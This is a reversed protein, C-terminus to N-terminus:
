TLPGSPIRRQQLAQVQERTFIPQLLLQNQQRSRFLELIYRMRQSLLVWDDAGTGIAVHRDIGLKGLLDEAVDELHRLADHEESREALAEFQALMMGLEANEITELVPPFLPQGPSAPLDRGLRLTGDPLKLTMMLETAFRHFVDQVHDTIPSLLRDVLAYGRPGLVENGVREALADHTANVLMNGIPADLAGAIYTQLRTQEHLGVTANALLIREARRKVDLEFKAHYYHTAADRLLSQGGRAILELERTKPDIHVKDPEIPGGELTELYRQLKAPDPSRDSGLEHLFRTFAPALEAFVQTNGEALFMRMDNIACKVSADLPARQADNPDAHLSRLQTNLRQLRQDNSGSGEIWWRLLEPLEQNQIFQGVVKSSWAAFSFWTINEPGLMRAFGDSLEHYGQSILLNRLVPQNELTIISQWSDAISSM